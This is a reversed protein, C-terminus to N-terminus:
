FNLDVKSPLNGGGVFSIDKPIPDANPNIIVGGVREYQSPDGPLVKPEKKCALVALSLLFVATLGKFALQNKKM